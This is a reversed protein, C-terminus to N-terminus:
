NWLVTLLIGAIMLVTAGLRRGTNKEELFFGALIVTWVAQLRKLSAAYAALSYALSQNALVAGFALAVVGLFLTKKHEAVGVVKKLFKPDRFLHLMLTVLGIVTFAVCSMFLGSSAVVAKKDFPFSFSFVVASLLGYLVGKQITFDQLRKGITVFADAFLLYGLGLVTVLIGLVGSLSPTEGLFIFGTGIVFIPVLLRLPAVLSADAIKFARVLLNQGIINLFSTVAVASWFGEKIQPVGLVLVCLGLLIGTGLMTIVLLVQDDIKKNLNKKTLFDALGLLFSGPLMLSLFLFTNNM